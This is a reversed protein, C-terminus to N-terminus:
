STDVDKQQGRKKLADGAWGLLEAFFGVSGEEVDIMGICNPCRVQVKPLQVTATKRIRLM